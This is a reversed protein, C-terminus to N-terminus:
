DYTLHERIQNEVEHKRFYGLTHRGIHELHAALTTAGLGLDLGLLFLGSLLLSFCGRLLKFDHLKLLLDRLKLLFVLLASHGCIKDALQDVWAQDVLPVFALENNLWGITGALEFGQEIFSIKILYQKIKYVCCNQNTSILAMYFM